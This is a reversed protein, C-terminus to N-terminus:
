FPTVLFNYQQQHISGLATDIVDSGELRVAILVNISVLM